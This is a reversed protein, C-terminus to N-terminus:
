KLNEGSTTEVYLNTAHMVHMHVAM